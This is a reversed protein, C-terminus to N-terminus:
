AQCFFSFKKITKTFCYYNILTRCKGKCQLQKLLQLKGKVLCVKLSKCIFQHLIVFFFIFFYNRCSLLWKVESGFKEINQKFKRKLTPFWLFFFYLSFGIRNEIAWSMGDVLESLTNEVFDIFHRSENLEKWNKKENNHLRLTNFNMRFFVIKIHLHYNEIWPSHKRKKQKRFIFFSLFRDNCLKFFRISFTDISSIIWKFSM